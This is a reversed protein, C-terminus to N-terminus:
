GTLRGNPADSRRRLLASGLTLAGLALLILSIASAGTSPLEAAAEEVEEVITELEVIEETEAVEEVPEPDPDTVVPAPDPTPAEPPTPPVPEDPICSAPDVGGEVIVVWLRNDEFVLEVAQGGGLGSVTGVTAGTQGDLDDVTLEDWALVNFADCADPSTGFTLDLTIPNFWELEEATIQDHDDGPIPGDLDLSFGGGVLVLDPFALIGPSSGPSLRSQDFIGTRLDVLGEGGLTGQDIVTIAHGEGAEWTGGAQVANGLIELRQDVQITGGAANVLVGDGTLRRRLNENAGPEPAAAHITGQNTFTVGGEIQLEPPGALGTGGLSTTLVIEGQNVGDSTIILRPTVSSFREIRITHDAQLSGELTTPRRIIVDAGGTAPDSADPLRLLEPDTGVAEWNFLPRGAAFTASSLDVTGETPRLFWRPGGSLTGEVILDNIRAGIGAAGGRLLGAVDFTAGEEVVIDTPANGTETSIDVRFTVDPNPSVLNSGSRLLLGANTGSSSIIEPTALTGGGDTNIGTLDITGHNDILPAILTRRSGSGEMRLEHHNVIESAQFRVNDANTEGGTVGPADMVIVGDNVIAGGATVYTGRSGLGPTPTALVRLTAGREITLSGVDIRREVDNIPTGPITVTYPEALEPLCVDDDADPLENTSWNTTEEATDTDILVTTWNGDLGDAEGDWTVAGDPCSVHSSASAGPAIMLLTTALAVLTVLVLWSRHSVASSLGTLPSRTM